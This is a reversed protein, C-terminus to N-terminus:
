LLAYIAELIILRMTDLLELKKYANRSMKEIESCRMKIKEEELRVNEVDEIYERIMTELNVGKGLKKMFKNYSKNTKHFLVAVYILLSFNILLLTIAIIGFAETKAFDILFDM